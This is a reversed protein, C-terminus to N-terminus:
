CQISPLYAGPPETFEGLSMYSLVKIIRHRNALARRFLDPRHLPCIFRAMSSPLNRAAHAVLALLDDDTDAGGHGFSTAILYGVARGDRERLFGPFNAKLLQAADKARSFGYACCSLSEIAALDALTLPRISPDDASAPYAQMLAASSRWTFGLAAYLSLSTTNVAEQFLRVQTISRRDCEAIIWKMLARGVGRSQARPDVTLPGIGAVVDSHLLFNSGVIHDDITAVVGTYDLRNLRHSIVLRGADLSPIDRSVAHCDQFESFAQYCIRALESTHNEHVPILKLTM